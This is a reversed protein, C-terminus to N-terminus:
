AQTTTVADGSMQLEATWTVMDAVPATEKYSKVLATVTKTPKGTGLGEPQYVVVANTGLLPELAVRPGVSATTDYMGGLTISGDLLGGTYTKSNSGFGTDEHAEAERGWEVSNTHPSINKTAVTIVVGKGHVRAM